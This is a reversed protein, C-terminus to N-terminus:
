EGFKYNFVEIDESYRDQILKKREDTYWETYHGHTTKNEHPLRKADLGLKGCVIDFDEQLNEFRGVFDINNNLFSSQTGCHNAFRPSDLFSEFTFKFGLRRSYLYSSMIRDWPNRVFAFSFYQKQRELSFNSLTMHQQGGFGINFESRVKTPLAELPYKRTWDHSIGYHSLIFREISTGGCKPIHIFIFKDKHSIM